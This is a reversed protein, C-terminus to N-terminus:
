NLIYINPTHHAKIQHYICDTVAEVKEEEIQCSTIPNSAM